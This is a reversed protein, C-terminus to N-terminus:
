KGFVLGLFFFALPYGAVWITLPLILGRMWVLYGLMGGEL